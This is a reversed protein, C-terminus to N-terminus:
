CARRGEGASERRLAHALGGGLVLALAAAVAGPWAGEAPPVGRLRVAVQGGPRVPGGSWRQYRRGAETVTGARRLGEGAVGAGPAVLVEVDQAGDPLRWPVRLERRAPLRYTYAVQLTGPLIPLADAIRGGAVRPDRWGALPTVAEAGAPLPVTLPDQGTAPIARDTPNEYREIVSVRVGGPAIEVVGFVLPVRVASRDPAPDYVALDVARAPESATLAIRDSEYPVGRYDTRLLFVRIGGVPLGTFAFRGRADSAARREASSGREVIALRVVQGALPHAPATRDIVRGRIQGGGPAQGGRASAALGLGALLLAALAAIRM